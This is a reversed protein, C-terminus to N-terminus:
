RRAVWTRLGEWDFRCPLLQYGAAKLREEVQRRRSTECLVTVSGGGGAGNIKFGIAGAPRAVGEIQEIRDTTIGPHLAKQASNNLNMIEAFAAFDGKWLASAALQPTTKLTDMAKRTSPNCAQYDAIVKEHVESSLHREGTYVLVLRSELEWAIEPNVRVPSTTVRPYPDITHYSIGGVAAAVQDQVGSQIGLEKTELEHALRGIQEPRYYEGTLMSLAGILAVSIAASSGTGCGAPVDAYVYADLKDIGMVNVAAKLLDHKGDYPEAGPEAIDIIEGFDQAIVSVGPRARTAIIVQAYLSVAFNLVYGSGAFWTDTWGGFDLVRNPAQAKVIM